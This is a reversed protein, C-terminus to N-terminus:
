AVSGPANRPDAIFVYRVRDRDPRVLHDDLDDGGAQVRPDPRLGVAGVVGAGILERKDGADVPDDAIGVSM